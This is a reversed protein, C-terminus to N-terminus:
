CISLGGDLMISNGTIMDSKDSLLYLTTNVVDRVEAVKRLPTRAKLDALKQPYTLWNKVGMATMVVTPNVCNVRIQSPGLELAMVRAAADLAAKSSCYSANGIYSFVSSLSSIFVISGGNGGAVMAKSVEQAVNIGAVLNTNITLSLNEETIDGLEESIYVGANYVLLDIAGEENIKQIAAKTEPWKTLDQCVTHIGPADVALTDLGSQHLSLAYTEAGAKWLAM